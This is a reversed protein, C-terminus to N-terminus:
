LITLDLCIKIIIWQHSKKKIQQFFLQLVWCVFRISFFPIPYLISYFLISCFIFYFLYFLISHFLIYLSEPNRAFIQWFHTHEGGGWGFFFNVPGMCRHMNEFWHRYFHILNILSKKKKKEGANYVNGDCCIQSQPDYPSKNGCCLENRSDYSSNGCCSM